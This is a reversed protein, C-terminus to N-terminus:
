VSNPPLRCYNCKEKLRSNENKLFEIYQLVQHPINYLSLDVKNNYSISSKNLEYIYEKSVNLVKAIKTWEADSISKRGNERRSYNCQTMGVLDALEEQSWGKNLRAERLKTKIM